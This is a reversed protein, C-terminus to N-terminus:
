AVKDRHENFEADMKDEALKFAAIVNELNETEVRLSVASASAEEFMAANQQTVQDLHDTASTIENISDSQDAAAKAIEEIRRVIGSVSGSISQLAEGTQTVLLVGRDVEGESRGVLASIEKATDASRAALDRVESAVVAFGRGAEGARAAEVGANLALLNTQFTIDDILRIAAGIAGSSKQVERIAAVTRQVLKNGDNVESDVSNAANSVESALQATSGVSESLTKIATATEELTAAAKETRAALDQAAGAIEQTSGNIMSGSDRVRGFSHSLSMISQNVQQQIEGFVGKFDGDMQFTLDGHALTALAQHVQKLGDETVNCVQNLGDGIEALIGEENELHLRQDFEGRACASVVTSIQEAIQNDRVRRVEREKALQRERDAEQRALEAEREQEARRAAAREERAAEEQARMKQRELSNERFVELAKSVEGFENAGMAPIQHELNGDALERAALVVQGFGRRISRAFSMSLAVALLGALVSLVVFTTLRTTAIAKEQGMVTVLEVSVENELDKLLNIRKTQASFFDKGTYPKLNGELGNELALERLKAVEQVAPQGLLRRYADGQEVSATTLFNEFHVSQTAILETLRTIQDLTFAGVAYGGAGVAREIGAQEKGKLFNVFASTGDAVRKNESILAVHQIMELMDTNLVTYRAIASKTAVELTDVNRRLAQINAFSIQLDRFRSWFFEDVESLDNSNIFALIKAHRTDTEARQAALESKFEAGKSALFVATAGREKQQEHVAQSLLTVPSVLRQLDDLQRVERLQGAIHIASLVVAIILPFIPVIYIARSM